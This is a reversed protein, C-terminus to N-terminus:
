LNIHKLLENEFDYGEKLKLEVWYKLAAKKGNMKARSFFMNKDDCTNDIFHKFQHFKDRESDILGIAVIKAREEKWIQARKSKHLEIIGEKTLTDYIIGYPDNLVYKSDKVCELFDPILKYIFERTMEKIQEETPNFDKEQQEKQYTRLKALQSMKYRRYSALVNGLFLKDFSQFSDKEFDLKKATYLAFAEEIEMLTLDSFQRKIQDILRKVEYEDLSSRLGCDFASMQLVSGTEKWMDSTESLNRFKQGEMCRVVSVLALPANTKLLFSQHEVAKAPM